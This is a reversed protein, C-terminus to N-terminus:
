DIYVITISGRNSLHTHPLRDQAFKASPAPYGDRSPRSPFSSSVLAGRDSVTASPIGSPRVVREHTLPLRHAPEARDLGSPDSQSALFRLIPQRANTMM